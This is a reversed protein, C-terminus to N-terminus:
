FSFGTKGELINRVSEFLKTEIAIVMDYLEKENKHWQDPPIDVWTYGYYKLIEHSVSLWEIAKLKKKSIGSM